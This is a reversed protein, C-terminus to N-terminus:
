NSDEDEGESDWPLSKKDNRFDEEVREIFILALEMKDHWNLGTIRVGLLEFFYEDYEPDKLRRFMVAIYDDKTAM